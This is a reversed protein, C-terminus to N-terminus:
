SPNQDSTPSHCIEEIHVGIPEVFYVSDSKRDFLPAAAVARLLCGLDDASVPNPKNPINQLIGAPGRVTYHISYQPM